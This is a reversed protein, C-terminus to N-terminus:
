TFYLLSPASLVHYNIHLAGDSPNSVTITSMEKRGIAYASLHCSTVMGFLELLATLLPPFNGLLHSLMDSWTSFDEISSLSEEMTFPSDNLM